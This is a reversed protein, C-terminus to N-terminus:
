LCRCFIWQLVLLDRRPQEASFILVSFLRHFLRAHAHIVPVNQPNSLVVDPGWFSWRQRRAQIISSLEPYLQLVHVKVEPTFELCCDGHFMKRLGFYKLSYKQMYLKEQKWVECCHDASVNFHLDVPPRLIGLFTQNFFVVDTGVHQSQICEFMTCDLFVWLAGLARHSIHRGM